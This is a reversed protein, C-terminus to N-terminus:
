FIFSFSHFTSLNRQLFPNFAFLLLLKPCSSALPDPLNLRRRSSHLSRSVFFQQRLGCELPSANRKKGRLQAEILMDLSPLRAM